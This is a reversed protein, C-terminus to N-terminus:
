DIGYGMYEDDLDETYDIQTWIFMCLKTKFENLGDIERISIPIRNWMLHSGYFFSSVFAGCGGHSTISCTYCLYDLHCNRLRRNDIYPTLYPPLEVPVLGYVVKYFFLIDLFDFRASLPLFNLQRCKQIYMNLSYSTYEEHLIWKVARRQLNELKNTLTKNQPRWIISCHEFQSRVLTLYLVRRRASDQVINCTRRTLGLKQNATSLVKQCQETWSLDSTVMVGLDKESDVYDLYTDGLSYVFQTFPLVSLLSPPKDTVALVKCKDPHFKMKNLISWDHLYDIDKQLCCNDHETRISRWIKTDDAYLSLQTGPSLGDPLDNIFLVFLLPGLISGQPVGSKAHKTSSMKNGIVVRQQRDKLYNAIFKLLRGDIEFKYKLKSLVIDHNVSDFAKAFDFYVVDTHVNDNLSLALSDCLGVLNTACSKKALFGHQRCDIFRDAHILLEDNVIMEFTKMVLSTLSIPRYNSVEHKNGKKFIPVVHGM